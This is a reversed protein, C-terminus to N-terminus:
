SPVGGIAPMCAGFMASRRPTAGLTRGADRERAQPPCLRSEVLVFSWAAWVTYDHNRM